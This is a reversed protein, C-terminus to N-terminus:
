NQDSLSCRLLCTGEGSTVLGSVAFYGAVYPIAVKMSQQVLIDQTFLSSFFPSLLVAIFLFAGYLVGTKSFNLVTKKMTGVRDYSDSEKKEFIAPMFTQATLNISECVPIFCMFLSLIIQQAAMEVTGLTSSVVHSMAVYGSVRGIATTTVPLMFPLFDKIDPLSPVRLLKRINFQNDLIGMSPSKIRKRMNGKPAIRLWQVFMFLAAYQSISTACAAGPSGGLFSSPVFLLDGIFNVIGAMAIVLLPGKVDKMGLCASQATGIVVAAPMGIARIQVYRIASTLIMPDVVKGGLLMKVLVPAFAALTSGFLIGVILALRLAAVLTKKTETNGGVNSDKGKATAILNTTATYM